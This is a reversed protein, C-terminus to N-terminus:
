APESHGSPGAQSPGISSLFHLLSPPLPTHPHFVPENHFNGDDGMLLAHTYYGDSSADDDMIEPIDDLPPPSPSPSADAVDSVDMEDVDMEDVNMGSFDLTSDSEM